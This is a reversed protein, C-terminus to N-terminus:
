GLDTEAVIRMLFRAGDYPFLRDITTDHIFYCAYLGVTDVDIAAPTYSVKGSAAVDLTAAANNVTVIGAASGDLLVMRFVITLGTLNLATGANDTLTAGIAERNGLVRRMVERENQAPESM